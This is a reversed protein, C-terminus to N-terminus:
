KLFDYYYEFYFRYFRDVISVYTHQSNIKHTVNPCNMLIFNIMTNRDNLKIGLDSREETSFNEKIVRRLEDVKMRSLTIEASEATRILGVSELKKYHESYDLCLNTERRTKIFKCVYREFTQKEEQSLDSVTDCFEKYGNKDFDASNKGYFCIGAKLKKAYKCNKFDVGRPCICQMADSCARYAHCIDFGDKDSLLENKQEEEEEIEHIRLSIQKDNM